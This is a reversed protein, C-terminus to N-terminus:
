ISNTHAQHHCSLQPLIPNGPRVVSKMMLFSNSIQSQGSTLVLSHQLIKKKRYQRAFSEKRIAVFNVSRIPHYLVPKAMIFSVSFKMKICGNQTSQPNGQNKPCLRKKPSTLFSFNISTFASISPM